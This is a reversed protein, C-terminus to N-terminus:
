FHGVEGGPAAATALLDFVYQAVSRFCVVDLSDEGSMWFAAAAQALRTRCIEGPGFAAPSVDAPTLKALVERAAPGSVRLVARADSVEAVLHHTGQLAQALTDAAQSADAHPLLVMLEDPSMWLLGRGDVLSAKRRGPFDVGAVSTVATQLTGDDLDGRLTIMGCLGMDEIRAIGDFSRGELASRAESM